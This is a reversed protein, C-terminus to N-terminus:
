IAIGEKKHHTEHTQSHALSKDGQVQVHTVSPGKFILQVTPQIPVTLPQKKM